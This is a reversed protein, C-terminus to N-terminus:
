SSMREFNNNSVVSFIKVPAFNVSKTKKDFQLRARMCGYLILQSLRFCTKRLHAFQLYMSQAYRRVCIKICECPCVPLM